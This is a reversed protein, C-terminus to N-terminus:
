ATGCVTSKKNASQNIYFAGNSHPMFLKLTPLLMFTFDFELKGCLADAMERYLSLTDTNPKASHEPGQAFPGSASFQNSSDRDGSADDWRVLTWEEVAKETAKRAKIQLPFQGILM